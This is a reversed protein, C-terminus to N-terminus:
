SDDTVRSRDTRRFSGRVLRHDRNRDPGSSEPDLQLQPLTLACCATLRAEGFNAKSIGPLATGPYSDRGLQLCIFETHGIKVLRKGCMTCIQAQLFKARSVVSSFQERLAIQASLSTRGLWRLSVWLQGPRAPRIRAARSSRAASRPTSSRARQRRSAPISGCQPDHFSLQTLIGAFRAVRRHALTRRAVLRPEDLRM